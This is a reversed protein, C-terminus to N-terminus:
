LGSLASGAPGFIDTRMYSEHNRGWGLDGGYLKPHLGAGALAPALDQAIWTAEADAPLNLGPYLTPTGPENQPTVAAIPVGAAAYAKLFSVFYRAWPRYASPVLRGRNGANGLSHNAKMWAPPSWPSALLETQEDEALVQRLAPLVYAQDHGISFRHMFPDKAGAPMDDYSYPRGNHTFDSAGMPVRVFDLHIGGSGFLEDMLAQRAAMPTRREILWASTDTMAAGFGNVDQYRVGANVDIVPEGSVMATGFEADPLRTLRESLNASTLAVVADYPDAAAAAASVVRGSLGILVVIAALLAARWPRSTM